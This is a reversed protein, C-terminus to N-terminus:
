DLPLVRDGAQPRCASAEAPGPTGDDWGDRVVIGETALCLTTRRAEPWQRRVFDALSDPLSTRIRAAQLDQAHQGEVSLWPLFRAALLWVPSRLEVPAPAYGTETLWHQAPARGAAAPLPAWAQALMEAVWQNCNQDRPDDPHAVANYAPALLALASADDRVARALTAAAAPPLHVISLHAHAPDDLGSVFGALGQDFVKPVQEACAFYLQRVSWRSPRADEDAPSSGPLAGALAIAAHTLRISWGRLDTGSRAILAAGGAGSGAALEARAAEALELLRAHDAVARPPARDCVLPM